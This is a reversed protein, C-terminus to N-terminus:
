FINGLYTSLTRTRSFSTQLLYKKILASPIFSWQFTSRWLCTKLRIDSKLCIEPCRIWLSARIILGQLNSVNFLSCLFSIVAYVPAYGPLIPPLVGGQGVKHPLIQWFCFDHRKIGHKLSCARILAFYSLSSYFYFLM